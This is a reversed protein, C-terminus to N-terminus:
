PSANAIYFLEAPGKSDSETLEGPEVDPKLIEKRTVVCENTMMVRVVRKTNSAEKAMGSAKVASVPLKSTKVKLTAPRGDM